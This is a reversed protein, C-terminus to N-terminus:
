DSQRSGAALEGTAQWPRARCRQLVAPEGAQQRLLRLDGAGAVGTRRRRGGCCVEERSEGGHTVFWSLLRLSSLILVVGLSLLHTSIGAIPDGRGRHRLPPHHPETGRHRNICVLLYISRCAIIVAGRRGFLIYPASKDAGGYLFLALNTPHLYGAKHLQIEIRVNSEISSKFCEVINMKNKFIMYPSRLCKLM